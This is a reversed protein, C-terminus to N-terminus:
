TFDALFGITIVPEPTNGPGIDLILTQYKRTTGELHRPTCGRIYDAKLIEKAAENLRETLHDPIYRPARFPSRLPSKAWDQWKISVCKPMVSDTESRTASAISALWTSAVM